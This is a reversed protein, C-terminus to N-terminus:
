VSSPSKGIKPRRAYIRDFWWRCCPRPAISRRRPTIQVEDYPKGGLSEYEVTVDIGQEDLRKERFITIVQQSNGVTCPIVAGPALFPLGRNFYGVESSLELGKYDVLPESFSFRINRAARKSDNRVLIDVFPTRSFWDLDVVVYPREQAQRNERMEQLTDRNIRAARFAYFALVLTGIAAVSTAVASAM